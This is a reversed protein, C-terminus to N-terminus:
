ILNEELTLVNICLDNMNLIAKCHKCEWEEKSENDTENSSEEFLLQHIQLDEEEESSKYPYSNKKEKM